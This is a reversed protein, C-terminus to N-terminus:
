QKRGSGSTRKDKRRTGGQGRQKSKIEECGTTAQSRKAAITGEQTRDNGSDKNSSNISKRIGSTVLYQNSVFCNLCEQNTGAQHALTERFKWCPQQELLSTNNKIQEHTQRGDTYYRFASRDDAHRANRKISHYEGGGMIALLFATVKLTHTGARIGDSFRCHNSLMDQLWKNFLTAPVKSSFGNVIM